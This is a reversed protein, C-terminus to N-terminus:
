LLEWRWMDGGWVGMNGIIEEKQESNMFIGPFSSALPEEGLWSDHWFNIRGGNGVKWRFMKEFWRLHNNGGYSNCLDRWWISSSNDVSERLMGRWSEYKSNLVDGGVYKENHFM